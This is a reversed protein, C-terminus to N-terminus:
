PFHRDTYAIVDDRGVIRWSPGTLRDSTSRSFTARIFLEKADDPDAGDFSFGGWHFVWTAEAPDIGFTRGIEDALYRADTITSPGRNAALERLVVTYPRKEEAPNYYLRLHTQAIRAYGQWTFLTDVMLQARATPATSPAVALLAFLALLIGRHM